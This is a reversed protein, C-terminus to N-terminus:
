CHLSSALTASPLLHPPELLLLPRFSFFGKGHGGEGVKGGERRGKRGGERESESRSKLGLLREAFDDVQAIANHADAVPWGIGVFGYPGAGDWNM